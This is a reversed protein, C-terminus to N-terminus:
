ASDIPAYKRRLDAAEVKCNKPACFNLSHRVLIDLLGRNRLANMVSLWFKVGGNGVIM